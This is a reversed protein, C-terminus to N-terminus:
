TFSFSLLMEGSCNLHGKLDDVSYTLPVNYQAHVEHIKALFNEKVTLCATLLVYILTIILCPILILPRRGAREIVFVALVTTLVNVVGTGVVAYPVQEAEM